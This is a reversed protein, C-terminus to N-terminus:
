RGGGPEWTMMDLFRIDGVKAEVTAALPHDTVRLAERLKGLGQANSLLDQRVAEWEIAKYRALDTRVSRLRRAADRAPGRYAARLQSDLMPILRPRM